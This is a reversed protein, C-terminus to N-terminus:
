KKRKGICIVARGTGDWGVAVVLDGKVALGWYKGTPLSPEDYVKWDVGNYHALLGFEGAVFVDNQHNGRVRNKYIKPLEEVKSWQGNEYIHLGSGCVYLPTDEGFWVSHASKQPSWDFEQVTLDDM